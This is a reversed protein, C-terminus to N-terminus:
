DGVEYPKAVPKTENHKIIPQTIGANPDIDGLFLAVLLHILLVAAHAYFWNKSVRFLTTFKQSSLVFYIWLLGFSALDMWFSLMLQENIMRLVSMLMMWAYLGFLLFKKIANIRDRIQRDRSGSGQSSSSRGSHKRRSSSQRSSSNNERSESMNLM